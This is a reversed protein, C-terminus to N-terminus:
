TKIKRNYSPNKQKIGSNIRTIQPNEELFRIVDCYDFERDKFNSYIANIVQYDEPTDMTLRLNSKDELDSNSYKEWRFMEDNRYMYLTVHELCEKDTANEYTKKLAGYSFVEVAVGLALERCYDLYDVEKSQFCSVAEDIIKPDVCANDGTLRVVIDAKEATACQYYRELVNNLSGRYVKIGNKLCVESLIDDEIEDSTAVIVDDISV